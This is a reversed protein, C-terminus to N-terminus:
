ESRADSVRFTVVSTCSGGRAVATYTSTGKPRRAHLAVGARCRFSLRRPGLPVGGSSFALAAWWVPGPAATLCGERKGLTVAYEERTAVRDCRTDPHRGSGGDVTGSALLVRLWAPPRQAPKRRSPCHRHSATGWRRRSATGWHRRTATGLASPDGDGLASPEMRSPASGLMLFGVGGSVLLLVAGLTELYLGASPSSVGQVYQNASSGILGTAHADPLDGLLAILLTAVGLVALGLLATRNGHRYVAAALAFCVLAIPVPAWGHNAGTGVTKIPASSTPVHVHYLPIFQAVLVLLAGIAAVLVVAGTGSARGTPRADSPTSEDRRHRRSLRRLAESGRSYESQAEPRASM